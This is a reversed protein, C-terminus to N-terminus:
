IYVPDKPPELNCERIFPIYFGNGRIQQLLPRDLKTKWYWEPCYVTFAPPKEVNESGLGM